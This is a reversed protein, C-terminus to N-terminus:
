TNSNFEYKKFRMGVSSSLPLPSYCELSLCSVNLLSRRKASSSGAQPSHYKGSHRLLIQDVFVSITKTNVLHPLLKSSHTHYHVRPLRTLNKGHEHARESKDHTDRTAEVFVVNTKKLRCAMNVVAVPGSPKKKQQWFYSPDVTSSRVCLWLFLRPLTCSTKKAVAASCAPQPRLTVPAACLNPGADAAFWTRTCFARLSFNCCVGGSIM